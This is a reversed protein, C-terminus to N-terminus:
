RQDFKGNLFKFNCERIEIFCCLIMQKFRHICYYVSLYLTISNLNQYIFLTYGVFTIIILVLTRKGGPMHSRAM